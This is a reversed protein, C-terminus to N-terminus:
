RVRRSSRTARVSAASSASGPARRSRWASRGLVNGENDFRRRTVGDAVARLLAAAYSTEPLSLLSVCEDRTPAHGTQAADPVHLVQQDCKM